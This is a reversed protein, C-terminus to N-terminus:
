KQKTKRSNKKKLLYNKEMINLLTIFEQGYDGYSVVLHNGVDEKFLIYPGHDECEINIQTRCYGKLSMNEKITASVCLSDMLKLNPAIKCITVKGVSLNGQVGIGLGSEFHTTLNYSECMSLPLTCHALLVTGKEYNIYSPNAQFSATGTLARLIHMTLLTPVDGECGSTIGEENLLALALCSTNKYEELLDFCRVTLGDLNYKKAIRKLASYIYLAGMLVNQDKFKKKLEALHPVSELKKKNIEKFFEDMSIKIMNIQFRDYIEKSDYNSAILWDSPQGIVGLNTNKLRKYASIITSTEKIALAVQEETGTLLIAAKNHQGCYTKIELAAPLSNNKGTSILLIPDELSPFIKVFEAESGGSEVLVVALDTVNEDEVLLIDDNMLYNNIEEIFATNESILDKNQRHLDSAIRIVNIKM